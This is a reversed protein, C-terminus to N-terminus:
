VKIHDSLNYEKIKHLLTKYNINLAKAAKTKNWDCAELTRQFHWKLIEDTSALPSPIDSNEKTIENSEPLLVIERTHDNRFFQIAKKISYDLSRINGFWPRSTIEKMVDLTFTFDLPLAYMKLYKMKLSEAIQPIDDKRERLPPIHLVFDHIRYYLDERFKGEKVLACLDRNTAFILSGSFPIPQSSGLRQIEHRDLVDLLQKQTELDADGIEDLFLTGGNLTEFVGKKKIAGTFAGEESGFLTAQLVYPDHGACNKSIFSKNKSPNCSAHHIREAILTKGVGSEGLILIIDNSKIGSCIIDAYKAWFSYKNAMKRVPCIECYQNTANQM